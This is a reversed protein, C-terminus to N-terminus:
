AKKCVVTVMMIENECRAFIDGNMKNMLQRCIYLGLGSGSNNGTNSGRWFSDFIHPLENDSLTCGSNSITILRCNEEDSFDIKIIRGDGYKVANELVNQLVEVMREKDGALLCNTYDALTFDTSLLKLKDAYYAEIENMVESLYFERNNVELSLFDEKSAKMIQSIYNEIEDTKININEAIELQKEKDEYLGKSLAKAYLKIASLPTKIDHSLSLILTKKEKQLQLEEMKQQELKERLLDMGWVFRGFFRSRNEQLPVTLNGKSLQYPVERLLEFRRILHKRLYLLLALIFVAMVCLSVNTALLYATNDTQESVYEIRYYTEGIKRIVYDTNGGQLFEADPSDSKIVAQILPYIEYDFDINEPHENESPAHKPHEDAGESLERCLREIQVRYERGMTKSQRALTFNAIGIILIIAMLTILIIKNFTKM